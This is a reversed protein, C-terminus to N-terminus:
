RLLTVCDIGELEVMAAEIAAMFRDMDNATTKVDGLAQNFRHLEAFHPLQEMRELWANTKSRESFDLLNARVLQGIEEYCALDALSAQEASAIFDNEGLYYDELHQIVEGVLEQAKAVGDEEDWTSQISTNNLYSLPNTGPNGGFAVLVHPAMLKTTALRTLTHHAHLYQNIRGRAQLDEPYLDTWGYKDALYVLIAPMETLVFGEDEIVPLQGRPSVENVAAPDAHLEIPLDQLVCAWIITRSPQSAPHAYVKLM